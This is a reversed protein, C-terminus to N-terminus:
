RLPTIRAERGNAKDRSWMMYHMHCLGRARHPRDCDPVVCTGPPSVLQVPRYSSLAMDIAARRREGMFPRFKKMWDAAHAGGVKAVYTPRWEPRQPERFAVRDVGLIQAARFIVAADCMQVSLVPYCHSKADCSVTFAGEGELLGTLWSLARPDAESWGTIADLVSFRTPERRSRARRPAWSALARDVQATRDPGLVPRVAAMLAVAGAGKIQTVFPPKHHAQRPRVPTVARDLLAAARTVVDVDTMCLRVIPSSPDSPPGSLFTGEGELLGALWYPPLLEVPSTDCTRSTPAIPGECSRSFFRSRM